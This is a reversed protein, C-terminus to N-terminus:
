AQLPHLYNVSISWMQWCCPLDCSRRRVKGARSQSPVLSNVGDHDMIQTLKGLCFYTTHSCFTFCFLLGKQVGKSVVGMDLPPAKQFMILLAKKTRVTRINTTWCYEKKKKKANQKCEVPVKSSGKIKMTRLVTPM